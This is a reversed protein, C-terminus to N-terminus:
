QPKGGLPRKSKMMPVAEAPPANINTVPMSMQSRITEQDPIGPTQAKGPKFSKKLQEATPIGPIPKNGIPVNVANVSIGPPMNASMPIPNASLGAPMNAPDLKIEKGTMSNTNSNSTTNAPGSSACGFNSIVVVLVFLIFANLM